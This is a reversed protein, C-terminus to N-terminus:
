ALKYKGDDTKKAYGAEILKKMHSYMTDDIEAEEVLEKMTKGKKSLCANIKAGMSGLRSCFRDTKAKSKRKRNEAAQKIEVGVTFERTEPLPIIIRPVLLVRSDPLRYPTLEVCTMNVGFRRLWLVCSTLDLDDMSGAALIIRPQKELQPLDEEALFELIRSEAEARPVAHYNAFYDVVQDMTMTSCFAAYRIAQLDALTGAVDLKLEIVVLTGEKDLALVDLRRSSKDFRDFEPTIILLEEGLLQPNKLVWDELDRREQVGLSNFSVPEVAVPSNAGTAVLYVSQNM